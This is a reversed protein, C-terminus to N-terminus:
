SPRNATWPLWERLLRAGMPTVSYNIVGFLTNDTGSGDLRTDIELNRRTPGDIVVVRDDAHLSISKLFALSQCQAEQAYRLVAAAAGIGVTCDAM